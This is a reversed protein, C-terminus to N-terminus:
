SILPVGTSEDLVSPLVTVPEENVLTPLKTPPDNVVPNPLIAIPDLLILPPSIVELPVVPYIEFPVPAPNVKLPV